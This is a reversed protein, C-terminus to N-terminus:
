DWGILAMRSGTRPGIMPSQAAMTEAKEGVVTVRSSSERLNPSSSGERCYM